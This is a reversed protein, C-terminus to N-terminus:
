DGWRQLLHNVVFDGAVYKKVDEDLLGTLNNEGPHLPSQHLWVEM